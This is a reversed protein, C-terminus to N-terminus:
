LMMGNARLSEDTWGGAILQERTYGNAKPTM